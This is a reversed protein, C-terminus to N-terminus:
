AAKRFRQLATIPEARRAMLRNIGHAALTITIASSALLIAHFQWLSPVVPELPPWVSQSLNINEGPATFLRAFGLPIVYLSWAGLASYASLAPRRCVYLVAAALPLTHILVSTPDVQNQALRGVIWAPTGLGAFFVLGSSVLWHSRFLIGAAVVVSAWYCAWFAQQLDLPQKLLLDVALSLLIAGALVQAGAQRWHRPM